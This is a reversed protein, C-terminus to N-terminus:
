VVGQQALYGELILQAAVADIDGKSYPKGIQVLIDEAARSTLTEDYEEIDIDPFNSRLREVVSRTYKTQSSDAGSLSYPMGVVMTGIGHEHVISSINAVYDGTAAITKLSYPMKAQSTAIAVGIRRLGVDLALFNQNNRPLTAM